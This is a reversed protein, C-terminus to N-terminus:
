NWIGSLRTLDSTVLADSNDLFEARAIFPRSNFDAVPNADLHSDM